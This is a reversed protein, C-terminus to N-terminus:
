VCMYVGDGTGACTVQLIMIRQVVHASVIIVDGFVPLKTHM